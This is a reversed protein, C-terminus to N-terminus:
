EVVIEIPHESEVDFRFLVKVVLTTKGQKIAKFSWVGSEADGGTWGPQKMKEPHLYKTETDEHRIIDTDSIDFEADEGVSGHRHFKCLLIDGVNLSIRSENKWDLVIQEERPPKM